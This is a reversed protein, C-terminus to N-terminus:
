TLRPLRDIINVCCITVNVSLYKSTGLVDLPHSARLSPRRRAPIVLTQDLAFSGNGVHAANVVIHDTCVDHRENKGKRSTQLRINRALELALPAFWIVGQM